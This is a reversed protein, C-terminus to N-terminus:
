PVTFTFLCACMNKYSGDEICTNDIKTENINWM